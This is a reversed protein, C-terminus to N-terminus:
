IIHIYLYFFSKLYIINILYLLFTKFILMKLIIFLKKKTSFLSKSFQCTMYFFVIAKNNRRKRNVFSKKVHGGKMEKYVSPMKMLIIYGNLFKKSVIQKSLFNNILKSFIKM